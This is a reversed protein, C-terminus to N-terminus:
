REPECVANATSSKEIEAQAPREWRSVLTPVAPLSAVVAASPPVVTAHPAPIRGHSGFFRPPALQALTPAPLPVSSQSGLVHVQSVEIHLAVPGIFVPPKPPPKKPPPAAPAPVL